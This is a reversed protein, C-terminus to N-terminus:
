VLRHTTVKGGEKTGAALLASGDPLSVASVFSGTFTETVPEGSLLDWQRVVDHDATFLRVRGSVTATAIRVFEGDTPIPRGIEEGTEADWRCVVEGEEVVGVILPRGDETYVTTLMDVHPADIEAGFQTECLDGQWRRVGEYDGTVILSPGGRLTALTVAVADGVHELPPALPEAAVPNWLHLGNVGTGVLLARGSSTLGGAVQHIRDKGVADALLRGSAGDWLCLGDEDGAAVRVRGDALVFEKLAFTDTSTNEPAQFEGTPRGSEVDWRTLRGSAAAVLEMGGSRSRYILPSVPGEFGVIEIGTGVRESRM